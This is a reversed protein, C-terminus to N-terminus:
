LFSLQPDRIPGSTALCVHYAILGAKLNKVERICASNTADFKLRGVLTRKFNDRHTAKRPTKAELQLQNLLSSASFTALLLTM